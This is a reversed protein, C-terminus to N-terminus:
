VMCGVKCDTLQTVHPEMESVAVKVKLASTTNVVPQSVVPESDEFQASITTM